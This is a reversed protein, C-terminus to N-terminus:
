WCLQVVVETTHESRQLFCPLRAVRNDDQSCIVTILEAIVPDLWADLSAPEVLTVVNWQNHCVWPRDCVPSASANHFGECLVNIDNRGNQFSHKPCACIKRALTVPGRQPREDFPPWWQVPAVKDAPLKIESPRLEALVWGGGAAPRRRQLPQAESHQAIGRVLIDVESPTRRQNPESRPIVAM